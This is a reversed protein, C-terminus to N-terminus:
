PCRVIIMMSFRTTFKSNTNISSKESPTVASASRAFIQQFDAIESWCPGTSWFNWTSPTTGVLWAKEWFVIFSREYPTFIQVPREETKDCDARKVSPCVFLCFEWRWVADAHWATRYSPRSFCHAFNSLQWTFAATLSQTICNAIKLRPRTNDPSILLVCRVDFLSVMYFMCAGCMWVAAVVSAAWTLRVATRNKLIKLLQLVDSARVLHILRLFRLGAVAVVALTQSTVNLLYSV